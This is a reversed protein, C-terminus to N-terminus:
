WCKVLGNNVKILCESMKGWVHHYFWSTSRSSYFSLPPRTSSWSPRPTIPSWGWSLSSAQLIHFPKPYDVLSISKHCLRVRLMRRGTKLPSIIWPKPWRRRRSYCKLNTKLNIIKKKSNFLYYGLKVDLQNMLNLVNLTKAFIIYFRPGLRLARVMMPVRWVQCPPWPSLKCLAQLFNDVVSKGFLTARKVNVSKTSPALKKLSSLENQSVIDWKKLQAPNRLVQQHPQPRRAGAVEVPCRPIAAGRRGVKIRSNKVFSLKKLGGQQNIDYAHKHSYCVCLISLVQHCQKNSSRTHILHVIPRGAAFWSKCM